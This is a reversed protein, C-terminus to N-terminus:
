FQRGGRARWRRLLFAGSEFVKILEVILLADRANTLLVGIGPGNIHKTVQALGIFQCDADGARPGERHARVKVIVDRQKIRHGISRM